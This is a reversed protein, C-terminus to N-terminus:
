KGRALDFQLQIERDVEFAAEKVKEELPEFDDEIIAYQAFMATRDRMGNLTQAESRWKTFCALTYRYKRSRIQELSPNGSLDAQVLRLVDGAKLTSAALNERIFAVNAEVENLRANLHDRLIGGLHDVGLGMEHRLSQAILQYFDARFIASPGQDGLHRMIEPGPTADSSYSMMPKNAALISCAAEFYILTAPYILERRLKDRHYTENRYQHLKTLVPLLPSPVINLSTAYSVKAEFNREIDKIKSRPIAEGELERIQKQLFDAHSEPPEVKKLQALARGLWEQHALASETLRHVLVEVANDLLIFAIRLQPVRGVQMLRKAEELQVVILETREM